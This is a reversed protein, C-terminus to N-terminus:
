RLTANNAAHRTGDAIEIIKVNIQCLKFPVGFGISNVKNAATNTNGAEPSQPNALRFLRTAFYIHKKCKM